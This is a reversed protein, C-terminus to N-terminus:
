LGKEALGDGFKRYDALKELMPSRIQTGFLAFLFDNL